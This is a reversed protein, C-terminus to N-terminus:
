LGVVGMQPAEEDLEEPERPDRRRPLLGEHPDLVDLREEGGVTSAVAHQHEGAVEAVPLHRGCGPDTAERVRAAAEVEYPPRELWAPEVRQDRSAEAARSEPNQGLPAGEIRDDIAQGAAVDDDKREVLVGTAPVADLHVEEAMRGLGEATDRNECEGGACGHERRRAPALGVSPM